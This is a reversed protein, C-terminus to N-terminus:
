VVKVMKAESAKLAAQTRNTVNFFRFIASVHMKVTPESICLKDAILKNSFGQSMLGLVERQRETLQLESENQAKLMKAPMYIEGALVLQIANLMIKSSSEKNIYGMAGLKIARQMDDPSDSASLVIIPLTPHRQSLELIADFSDKGPMYLDILVLDADNHQSVAKITDDASMTEIINLNDSLAKLIHAIGERFLAHDDALIIKM